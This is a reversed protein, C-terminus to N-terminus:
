RFYKKIIELFDKVSNNSPDFGVENLFYNEAEEYDEMSALLVLTNNFDIDSNNFLEKKFRFKDNISFILKGRTPLNGSDIDEEQVKDTEELVVSDDSGESDDNMNEQILPINEEPTQKEVKSNSTIEDINYEPLQFSNDTESYINEKSFIESDENDPSSINIKQAGEYIKECKKIILRALHDFSDDRHLALQLLGELEYTKDLLYILGSKM